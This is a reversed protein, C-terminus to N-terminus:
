TLNDKVQYNQRKTPESAASRAAGTPETGAHAALSTGAVVWIDMSEVASM